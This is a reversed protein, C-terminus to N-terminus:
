KNVQIKIHEDTCKKPYFSYVGENACLFKYLDNVAKEEALILKKEINLYHLYDLVTYGRTNKANVIKSGPIAKTM